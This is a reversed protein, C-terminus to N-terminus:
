NVDSQTAKIIRRIQDKINKPEGTFKKKYSKFVRDLADANNLEDVEVYKKYDNCIDLNRKQVIPDKTRGGKKKEENTDTSTPPPTASSQTGIFDGMLKKLQQDYKSDTLKNDAISQLHALFDKPNGSFGDYHFGLFKLFTSKCWELYASKSEFLLKEIKWLSELDDIKTRDKATKVSPYSLLSKPTDIALRKGLYDKNNNVARDYTSILNRSANIFISDEDDQNTIPALDRLLIADELRDPMFNRRLYFHHPQPQQGLKIPLAQEWLKDEIFNDHPKGDYKEPRQSPDFQFYKPYNYYPNKM